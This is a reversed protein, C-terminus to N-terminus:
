CSPTPAWPGLTSSMPRSWPSTRACCPSRSRGVRRAYAEAVSGAVLDVALAGKSPSRRKIEAIVALNGAAHDAALAARLGRCPGDAMAKEAAEEIAGRKRRDAAAAQRHAEIIRDLYTAAM